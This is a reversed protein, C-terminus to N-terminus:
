FPPLNTAGYSGRRRQTAWRPRPLVSDLQTTAVTAGSAVVVGQLEINNTPTLPEAYLALGVFILGYLGIDTVYDATPRSEGDVVMNTGTGPFPVYIRGRFARGVTTSRLTCIGSTQRPLVASPVTGAGAGTPDTLPILVPTANIHQWTVGLFEADESMCNKLVSGILDDVVPIILEMDPAGAISIVQFHRVNIGLQDGCRAYVVSRWLQGAAAPTAM